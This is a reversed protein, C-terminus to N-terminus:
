RSDQKELNQRCAQRLISIQTNARSFVEEYQSISESIVQQKTRRGECVDKMKEELQRRLFPKTLSMELGIQDYGEVLAVGLTSPILEKMGDGERGERGATTGARGGRGNGRGSRSGHGGRGRGRGRTSQAAGRHPPDIDVPKTFRAATGKPVRVAYQRTLITEIHEAMTADTGIGNADMLTILDSESLYAPATTSGQEITARTLTVLEGQVFGPLTQSSQWKDYTYVDLYNREIVHLGSTSFREGSWDLVVETSDGKADKSCCALFHRTILTYVRHHDHDVAPPLVHSVPHIPPHAHDDNHGKRPTEYGGNILGQAFGGWSTDETQKAVLALLDMGNDFRDTETRPYSIYGKTYLSEAIDMVKKASMGLFLSGRRQLEVTTLPLPRWKSTPKKVVSVIRGESGSNEMAREFLLTVAMQDFLHGRKWNFNVNSKDKNVVLKIYWFQEPRFDQVRKFRDVIFGLTPFQCSGYSILADNLQRATDKLSLTQFRTFAAGLRLDIEIRADVADSLRKDIENLSQAAKKVHDQELNNFRARKVVIRSNGEKAIKVVEMGIHEGERDCDTWIMLGQARRAENKINKAVNKKDDAIAVQVGLHFLQAPACSNWQRYRPDFDAATIHGIVSTMTVESDGWPQPFRYVFDYNKIYPNDSNRTSVQGGSLIQAVSKAISPKEAVCLVRM